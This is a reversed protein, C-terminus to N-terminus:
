SSQKLTFVTVIATGEFIAKGNLQLNLQCGGAKLAQLIPRVKLGLDPVGMTAGQWHCPLILVASGPLKQLSLCVLTDDTGLNDKPNVVVTMFANYDPDREAWGQKRHDQPNDRM